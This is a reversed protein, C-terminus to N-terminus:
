RHFDLKNKLVTKLYNNEYIQWLANKYSKEESKGENEM